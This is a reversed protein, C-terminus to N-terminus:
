DDPQFNVNLFGPLSLAQVAKWPLFFAGGARKAM